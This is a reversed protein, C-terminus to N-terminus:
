AGFEKRLAAGHQDLVPVDGLPGDRGPPAAM